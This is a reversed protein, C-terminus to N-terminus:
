KFGPKLSAQVYIRTCAAFDEDFKIWIDKMLLPWVIERATDLSLFYFETIRKSVGGLIIIALAVFKHEGGCNESNRIMVFELKRFQPTIQLKRFIRFYDVCFVAKHKRLFSSHQAILIYVSLGAINEPYIWSIQRIISKRTLITSNFFLFNYYPLLNPKLENMVFTM